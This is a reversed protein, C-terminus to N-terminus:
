KISLKVRKLRRIQWVLMKKIYGLRCKSTWLWCYFYWSLTHFGNLTLFLSVLVVGIAMDKNNLKFLNWVNNKNNVKLLYIGASLHCVTWIELTVWKIGGSFMFFGKTKQNTWPTYFLYISRFRTLLRDYYIEYRREHIM